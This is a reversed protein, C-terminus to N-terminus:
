GGIFHTLLSHTMNPFPPGQDGAVKPVAGRAAVSSSSLNRCELRVPLLSLTGTRGAYGREMAERAAGTVEAQM